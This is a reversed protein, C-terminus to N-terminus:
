SGVAALNYLDDLRSSGRAPNAANAVTRDSAYDYTHREVGPFLGEALSEGGYRPAWLYLVLGRGKGSLHDPLNTSLALYDPGTKPRFIEILYVSCLLPKSIMVTDM